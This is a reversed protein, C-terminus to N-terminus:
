SILEYSYEFDNLVVLLICKIFSLHIFRKRGCISVNREGIQVVDAKDKLAMQIPQILMSVASLTAEHLRNFEDFCGWAGCRALGTLILNMSETDVNQNLLGCGVMCQATHIQMQIGNQRKTTPLSLLLFSTNADRKDSVM